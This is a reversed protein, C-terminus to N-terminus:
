LFRNLRGPQVPVASAQLHFRAKGILCDGRQSLAPRDIEPRHPIDIEATNM